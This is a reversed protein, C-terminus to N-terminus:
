LDFNKMIKSVRGLVLDLVLEVFKKTFVTQKTEVSLCYHQKLVHFKNTETNCYKAVSKSAEKESCFMMRAHESSMGNRNADLFPTVLEIYDRNCLREALELFNLKSKIGKVVDTHCKRNADAGLGLLFIAIEVSDLGNM